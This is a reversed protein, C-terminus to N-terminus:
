LHLKLIFFWVNQNAAPCWWCCLTSGISPDELTGCNFYGGWSCFFDRKLCYFWRCALLFSPRQINLNWRHMLHPRGSVRVSAKVATWLPAIQPWTNQELVSQCASLLILSQVACGSTLSRLRTGGSGCGCDCNWVNQAAALEKTLVSTVSFWHLAASAPKFTYGATVYTLKTPSTMLVRKVDIM